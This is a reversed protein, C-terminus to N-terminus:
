LTTMNTCCIMLLLLDESVADLGRGGLVREVTGNVNGRNRQLDWAIDRRSLQPFMASVQDVQAENYRQGQPRSGGSSTTDSAPSSFYRYILFALGLVFAISSYSITAEDPEAM